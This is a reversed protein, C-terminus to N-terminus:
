DEILTFDEGLREELLRILDSCKIGLAESIKWITILQSNNNGREVKSITGKYLAYENALRNLTLGNANARLDKVLQGLECSFKLSKSDMQQM